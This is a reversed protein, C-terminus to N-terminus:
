QAEDATDRRGTTLAADRDAGTYLHCPEIHAASTDDRDSRTLAIHATIGHDDSGARPRGLDRSRESDPQRHLGPLAVVDVKLGSRAVHAYRQVQVLRAHDRRREFTADTERARHLEGSEVGRDVLDADFGHVRRTEAVDFAEGASGDDLAGSLIVGIVRPGYASAASRFLPDIAPRHGNERPGRTLQVSGKRLLLHHDPPGLYVSGPRLRLGDTAEVVPMTAVKALIDRLLSKHRPDLHQVIVVPWGLHPLDGLLRELANLGGASTGVAVIGPLCETTGEM